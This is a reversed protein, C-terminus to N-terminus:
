RREHTEDVANGIRQRYISRPFRTQFDRLRKTAESPDTRQLLEIRLAEREESFMSDPYRREHEYLLNLAQEPAARRALRAAQLLAVDSATETAAGGVSRKSPHHRVDRATPRAADAQVPVIAPEDTPNGPAWRGPMPAPAVEVARAPTATSPQAEDPQVRSWSVGAAGGLVTILGLLSLKGSSWTVAGKGVSTSAGPVVPLKALVAATLSARQTEDPTRTHAYRMVARLETSADSDAEKWRIPASM